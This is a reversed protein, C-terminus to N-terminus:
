NIFNKESVSIEFTGELASFLLSFDEDDSWSTSSVLLGPRDKREQINGTADVTTFATDESNENSLLEKYKM